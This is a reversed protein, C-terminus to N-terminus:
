REYPYYFVLTDSNEAVRGIRYNADKGVPESGPFPRRSMVIGSPPSNAIVAYYYGPKLTIRGDRKFSYIERGPVHRAKMPEITEFSM